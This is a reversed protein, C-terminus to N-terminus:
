QNEHIAAVQAFIHGIQPLYEIKHSLRAVAKCRIALEDAVKDSYNLVYASFNM